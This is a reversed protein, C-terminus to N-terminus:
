QAPTHALRAISVSGQIQDRNDKVLAFSMEVYLKQTNDKHLARTLTPKGSLKLTGSEIAAHFGQWHAKRLHEPIILNLSQGLAEAKSFGFMQCAAENWYYIKGQLDSYIIADSAQEIIWDAISEHMEDTHNPSSTQKM